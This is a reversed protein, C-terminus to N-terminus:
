MDKSDAYIVAQDIDMHSVMGRGSHTPGETYQEYLPTLETLEQEWCDKVQENM